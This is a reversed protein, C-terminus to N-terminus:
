YNDPQNATYGKRQNNLVKHHLWSPVQGWDFQKYLAVLQGPRLLFTTIIAEYQNKVILVGTDTIHKSYYRGQKDYGTGVKVVEGFGVVKAIYTARELRDREFHITVKTGM